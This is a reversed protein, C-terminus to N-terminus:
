KLLFCNRIEDIVINGHQGWLINNHTAGKIEVLIAHPNNDKAIKILEKSHNINIVNDNDGHLILIKTDINNIKKDNKFIDIWYFDWNFKAVKCCSMFPSILVVGGLCNEIKNALEVTPGTGISQGLLIIDNGCIGLSNTLYNWVSDISYYCKKETPREKKGVSSSNNYDHLIESHGYGIYEYGVINCELNYFLWQLTDYIEGLDTANGHSFIITKKAGKDLHIYPIKYKDNITLFETGNPLDHPDPPYFAMKEITSTVIGM